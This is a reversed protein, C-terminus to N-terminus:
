RKKGVILYSSNDEEALLIDFQKQFRESEKEPSSLARTTKHDCKNHVHSLQERSLSHVIAFKGGVKLNNALSSSFKDVDLFHPFANYIVIVDFPKEFTKNLFDGVDFSAYGKGEYKKKALAIMNSSIDLGFVPGENLSHLLGTIRGTGCGLDLIYDGKQIGIRKLLPLIEEDKKKEMADWSNAMTDFYDKIANM